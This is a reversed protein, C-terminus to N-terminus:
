RCGCSANEGSSAGIASERVEAVHAAFDEDLAPKTRMARQQLEGREYPRVTTCSQVGLAFGAALVLLKRM